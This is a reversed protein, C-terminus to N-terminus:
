TPAQHQRRRQEDAAPRMPGSEKPQGSGAPTTTAPPASRRRQRQQEVRQQEAPQALLPLAMVMTIADAEAGRQHQAVEDDESQPRLGVVVGRSMQLDRELDQGADPERGVLDEHETSVATSITASCRKRVRVLSPRAIRATASFGASAATMPMSTRARSGSSRARRRRREGGDGAHQRPRVTCIPRLHAEVQQQRQEGRRDEAADAAEVARHEAPKIM